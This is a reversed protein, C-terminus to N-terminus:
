LKVEKCAILDEAIELLEDYTYEFEPGEEMSGLARLLSLFQRDKRENWDYYVAYCWQSIYLISKKELVYKKLREGFEVKSTIETRIM